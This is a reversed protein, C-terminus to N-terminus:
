GMHRDLFEFVVDRYREPNQYSSAGHGAGDFVVKEKIPSACADFVEDLMWVPVFTDASGHIFMMPVRARSLREVSSAQKFSYGARARCVKDAADLLPHAPLHMLERMQLEFEDWVSTYGCDEVICRVQEPLDLGSAMMVEAGGMSVGYLAIRAEPDFECVLRAWRVLDSSDTWGMGVCRDDNREHGRAAPLLVSYGAEHALYAERALDSPRGSYGHCLILYRHATDSSSPDRRGDRGPVVGHGLIRWGHLVGGDEAPLSIDRRSQEFWSRAQARAPDNAFVSMDVGMSAGSNVQAMISRDAKPNLALDFLANGAATLGAGGVAAIGAAIAGLIQIM